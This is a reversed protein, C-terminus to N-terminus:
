QLVQSFVDAPKDEVLLQGAEPKRTIRYLIRNRDGNSSAGLNRNTLIATTTGQFIRIKIEYFKANKINTMYPKKSEYCVNISFLIKIQLLKRYRLFFRCKDM